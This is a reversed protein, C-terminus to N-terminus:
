PKPCWYLRVLAPAVRNALLMGSQLLYLGKGSLMNRFLRFDSPALNGCIMWCNESNQGRATAVPYRYRIRIAVSMATEPSRTRTDAAYRRMTLCTRWTFSEPSESRESPIECETSHRWRKEDGFEDTQQRGIPTLGTGFRCLRPDTMKTGQTASSRCGNASNPGATASFRPSGIEESGCKWSQRRIAFKGDVGEFWLLERRKM